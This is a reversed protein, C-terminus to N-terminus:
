IGRCWIMNMHYYIVPNSVSLIRKKGSSFFFGAFTRMDGTLTSDRLDSKSVRQKNFIRIFKTIHYSCFEFYSFDSQDLKRM